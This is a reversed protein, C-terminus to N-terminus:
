LPQLVVANLIYCIPESNEYVKMLMPIYFFETKWYISNLQQQQLAWEPM